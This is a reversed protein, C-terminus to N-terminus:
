SLSCSMGNGKEGNWERCGWGVDWCFFFRRYAGMHVPPGLALFIRCVCVCVGGGVLLGM